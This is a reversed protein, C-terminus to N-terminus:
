KSLEKRLKLGKVVVYLRLFVGLSLLAEVGPAGKSALWLAAGLWLTTTTVAFAILVAPKPHKGLLPNNEIAGLKLVQLTLLLDAVSLAVFLLSLALLLTTM